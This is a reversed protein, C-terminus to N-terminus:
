KLLDSYSAAFDFCEPCEANYDILRIKIKFNGTNNSSKDLSRKDVMLVIVPQPTASLNDIQICTSHVDAITFGPSLALCDELLKTMYKHRQHHIRLDTLVFPLSKNESNPYNNLSEYLINDLSKNVFQYVQLDKHAISAYMSQLTISGFSHPIQGYTKIYDDTNNKVVLSLKRCTLVVNPLMSIPLSYLIEVLIQIPLKELM